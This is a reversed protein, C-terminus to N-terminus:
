PMTEDEESTDMMEDRSCKTAIPTTEEKDNTKTMGGGLCTQSSPEEGESNVINNMPVLQDM